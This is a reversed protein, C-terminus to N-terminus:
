KFFEEITHICTPLSFVVVHDDEKIHTNGDAIFSKGNRIVGGIVANRPFGQLDKVPAKTVKSNPHVIFELVESEMGHISTLAAVNGERVFRFINNVTILKKNILTDIGINKSLSIYDINEVLAITRAVGHGKAVLSSIINTESNGTVAIFADM